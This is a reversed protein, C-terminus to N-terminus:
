YFLLSGMQLSNCVLDTWHLRIFSFGFNYLLLMCSAPWMSSSCVISLLLFAWLVHIYYSVKEGSRDKLTPLIIPTYGIFTPSQMRPEIIKVKYIFLITDKDALLGCVVCIHIENERTNLSVSLVPMPHVYCGVLEIDGVLNHKVEKKIHAEFNTGVQFEEAYSMNNESFSTGGEQLSRNLKVLNQQEPNLAIENTNLDVFKVEPSLVVKKDPSSPSSCVQRIEATLLPGTPYDDLICDDGFNRCIISESLLGNYKRSLPAVDSMQNGPEAGDMKSTVNQESIQVSSVMCKSDGGNTDVTQLFVVLM